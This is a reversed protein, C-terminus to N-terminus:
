PRPARSPPCSPIAPPRRWCASRRRGDGAGRTSPRPSSAGARSGRGTGAFSRPRPGSRDKHCDNCANPTGLAASLDPRPVRFSHDRRGDVVMYMREPMHCSVCRAGESGPKHFHHERADYKSSLHCRACLTSGEFRLRLSHPEHCDSCTVGERYMRTQVFSGYEYVEDLIQGDAHYPGEEILAVRHTDELPQGHRYEPWLQARRAHCRGCTEVEVRSALPRTRRAVPTKPEFAWAGGSADKLTVVLGLTPDGTRRGKAAKRAWEVHRSAPGHCAECSVDIESWATEFRDEAARYNKRLNTSHCEACMFNWNQHPGTWHLVDRHDVREDPYLHFWRQGGEGAPRTDWAIGLVQYRGRPFEVLYQQLPFVGCTYAVRYEHLAGDPGDTRVFYSGDRRFLTSTVAGYTFTTDDFDGLVAGAAAPQMALDHHSGTWLKLQQPHCESCAQRGVYDAERPAGSGERNRGCAALAAAALLISATAAGLRDRVQGNYAPPASGM